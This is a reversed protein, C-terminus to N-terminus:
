LTVNFNIEFSLTCSSGSDYFFLLALRDGIKLSRGMRHTKHDEVANDTLIGSILVAAAPEYMNTTTAPFNIGNANYGSPVIVVVYAVANSANVQSLIGTDLRISSVTCPQTATYIYGPVTSGAPLTLFQGRSIPQVSRTLPYRRRSSSRRYIRPM